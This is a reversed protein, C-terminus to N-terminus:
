TEYVRLLINLRRLRWIFIVLVFHFDKKLRNVQASLATQEGRLPMFDSFFSSSIPPFCVLDDGLLLKHIKTATAMEM